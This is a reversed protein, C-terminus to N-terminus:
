LQKSVSPRFPSPPIPYDASDELIMVDYLDAASIVPAAFGSNASRDRLLNGGSTVGVVSIGGDVTMVPGGSNGKYAVCNHRIRGLGGNEIGSVSCGYDIQLFYGDNLDGSYGLVMLRDDPELPSTSVPLFYRSPEKTIIIAVDIANEQPTLNPRSPDHQWSPHNAGWGALIQTEEGTIFEKGSEINQRYVGITDNINFCHAATLIVQPSIFAGTCWGGGNSYNRIRVISRALNRDSVVVSRWRDQDVKRQQGYRAEQESSRIEYQMANNFDLLASNLQNLYPQLQQAGTPSSSAADVGAVTGAIALGITGIDAFTSMTDAREAMRRSHEAVGRALVDTSQQFYSRASEGQGAMVQDVAQNGLRKADLVYSYDDEGGQIMTTCSALLSCLLATAVLHKNM